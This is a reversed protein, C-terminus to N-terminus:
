MWNQKQKDIEGSFSVILIIYAVYTTTMENISYM